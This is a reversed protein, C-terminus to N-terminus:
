AIRTIRALRWAEPESEPIHPTDAIPLGDVAFREGPLCLMDHSVMPGFINDPDGRWNSSNFAPTVLHWFRYGLPALRDILWHMHGTNSQTLSFRNITEVIMAPRFATINDMAGLVVEREHGEVDIKVFDLRKLQLSDITMMGCPLMPADPLIDRHYLGVAGYNSVAHAWMQPFHVIECTDGLAMQYNRINDFGNNIINAGLMQNNCVQPEFAHVIGTDGTLRALALTHTGINAGAEVVTDGPRVIQSFVAVEAEAWEGYRTMSASITDDGDFYVFRGYRCDSHRLPSTTNNVRFPM